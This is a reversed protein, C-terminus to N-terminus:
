WVDATLYLNAEVGTIALFKAGDNAFSTVDDGLLEIAGGEPSRKARFGIIREDLPADYSAAVSDLTGDDIAGHLGPFKEALGNYPLGVVLASQINTGM